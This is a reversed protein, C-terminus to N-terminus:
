SGPWDVLLGGLRSKRRGEEAAGPRAAPRNQGADGQGADGQGTSPQWRPSGPQAAPRRGTNVPRFQLPATVEAADADGTGKAPSQRKIREAYLRDREAMVLDAPEGLRALVERVRAADALGAPGIKREIANRTRGVFAIRSGKPLYRTGAETVRSLYERILREGSLNASGKM